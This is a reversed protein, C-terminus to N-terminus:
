FSFSSASSANKGWTFWLIVSIVIGIILGYIAYMSSTDPKMTTGYWYGIGTLIITLVLYFMLIQNQTFNM